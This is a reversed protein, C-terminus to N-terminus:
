EEPLNLRGTTAPPPALNLTWDGFRRTKVTIYPSITAADERAVDVGEAVLDNFVETLDLTTSYILSNALLANFKVLIEQHDPHNDALVDSGFSLWQCFNNFSEMRNTLIAISDRLAPDSLYRLLVITRMVRGLERFARYLKNKRSDHGLRRLLAVSSIKGARISLAVRMLDPWHTEILTWNIVKDPGFLPDIHQYVKTKDVRYFVLDHWNRIRPLLDFGCLHALGFVPLSQGQTDAHIAEPQVESANNLLGDIIYIAEWVGCPIFRSFLAIYNDAIHRYAIGGYGGYRIHSEALLNDSWTDIQSGDAAARTGDGWLKPLDLAMYANIVDTRAKDIRDPGAHSLATHIQHASVTGGMHRSMQYPGLNAGYAFALLVYRGFANEIKPDSGSVPGLHRPWQTHHAVRAVVDLLSREPLRALVTRELVLAEPRRAKGRRRKLVPQAGEILLDANDPYGADTAAAVRTLEGRLSEVFGAADQPLGVEACYEGLLDQCDVWSLLQEHLDAYSESGVVAIDGSRLEAALYTFVCVEFHRRVLLNPRRRPRLIRHWAESAFSLDVPDGGLHDPITEATKARIAKLFAVADVVTRDATTPVLHLVDLLDFLTSRNRRYHNELFPLYNEGHFASVTEHAMSLADIGGADHLASLVARGTRESVVAAVDAVGSDSEADSVNMSERVAALVDGFVDVLRETEARSAERLAEFREKAQKHIRALRKCYMTALEDRGRMRATHVLCAILVTRKPESMDRLDGAHTARAEAAFHSVKAPPVGAVWGATSGLSDLWVQHAVHEKLNSLTAAGATKKVEDFESRRTVPNTDLLKLLRAEDIDGIRSAILEHFGTNVEARIEAAMKDLTTYGPLELRARVLEELAVNILDAPNDKSQAAEFIVQRVLKRVAEQDYVVGLHERVLGRHRQATRESDHNPEVDAGLFLYGRVHEIVGLPIDFLDPFYGLKQYSKLLVVLALLHQPSRTRERAWDIEERGPTFSGHLERVPVARRFRPYATREISAM